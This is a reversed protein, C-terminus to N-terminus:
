GETGDEGSPRPRGAAARDKYEQEDIAGSQDADWRSFLTDLMGGPVLASLEEKSIGGDGDKDVDAFNEPLGGGMGMGMGMGMQAQACPLALLAAIAVLCKVFNM